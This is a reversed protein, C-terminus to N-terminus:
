QPPRRHMPTLVVGPMQDVASQVSKATQGNIARHTAVGALWDENDALVILAERMKLLRDRREEDTGLNEAETACRMAWRRLDASSLSPSM